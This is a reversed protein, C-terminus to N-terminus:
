VAETIMVDDRLRHVSRGGINIIIDSATYYFKSRGVILVHHEFYTSAHFLSIAFCIKHM